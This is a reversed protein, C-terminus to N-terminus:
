LPFAHTCECPSPMRVNPVQQRLTESGSVACSAYGWTPAPATAATCMLIAPSDVNAFPSLVSDDLCPMENRMDTLFGERDVKPVNVILM